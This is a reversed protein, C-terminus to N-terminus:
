YVEKLYCEECYVKEPREPLYVSRIKEGCKDCKREYLKRPNKFRKLDKQRCDPCKKSLAMKMKKALEIELSVTKFNKGCTACSSVQDMGSGKVVPDMDKWRWGLGLVEEKTMPFYDSAVSENYAFPSLEMPFFEGYEGDHTMQEIIKARLVDYEKKSYQKNFICNKTRPHLGCCGFCESVFFSEMLYESELIDCCVFGFKALYNDEGGCSMEYSLQINKDNMNLDMSDKVDECEVLYKSDVIKFCDFCEEANKCNQIFDGSSNECNLQNQYKKPVTKNFVEFEDMLKEADEQTKEAILKEYEEKSYQKNKICYNKKILGSCM